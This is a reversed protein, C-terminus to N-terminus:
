LILTTNATDKFRQLKKGLEEYMEQLQDVSQTATDTSPM